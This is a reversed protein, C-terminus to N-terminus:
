CVRTLNIRAQSPRGAMEYFLQPLALAVFVCRRFTAYSGVCMALDIVAIIRMQTVPMTVGAVFCATAFLLGVFYVALVTTPRLGRAAGVTFGSLSLQRKASRTMRDNQRVIAVEVACLAVAMFCTALRDVQLPRGNVVCVGLACSVAFQFLVELRHYERDARNRLRGARWNVAFSAVSLATSAVNAGFWVAYAAPLLGLPNNCLVVGDVALPTLGWGSDCVCVGASPDCAGHWGCVPAPWLAGCANSSNMSDVLAGRARARRAAAAAAATAAAATAAAGALLLVLLLLVLVQLVLLVLVLVLLVVLALLALLALLWLLM